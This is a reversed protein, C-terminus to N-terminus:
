EIASTTFGGNRYYGIIGYSIGYLDLDVCVLELHYFEKNVPVVNYKVTNNIFLTVGGGITPRDFRVVDYGKPCFLTDPSESQLWTETV